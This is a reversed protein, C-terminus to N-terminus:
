DPRLSRHATRYRLAAALLRCEKTRAGGRWDYAGQDPEACGSTELGQNLLKLHSPTLKLLSYPIGDARAWGLHEAENGPPLLTLLQGAVLPGFLTTVLGDFTAAHVAPSGGGWQRYFSQDSWLLYNVLNRHEIVVGKPQGGSGSTYIVYAPNQPAFPQTRQADTPNIDLSRGLASLTDPDDLFFRSPSDPLRPAIQATTLVLAPQADQLMFALREAPYDPDLPLYAAGAKLIALLGFVMEISRPLALAVLTEPGIGQGVLLHALRNARLNLESYTLTTEEFILATAEPSRQVQAEFLAPLTADPVPRGTNNWEVLLQAREGPALLEFRDISQPPDAAIAELLDLFRRQHQALEDVSYLASNANFDIRLGGDDPRDYVAITLDDVPGISLNNPTADHGAFRLRYDFAMVNVTPGFLRQDTSVLGLNRRMDELRYRQHRLARFIEQGVGQILESLNMRPRVTLRLPVVNAVMGPVRRSVAKLRGTVPLGLVLDQAGTLRHVYAAGAAIVIPGLSTGAVRGATRLKELAYPELFATQRLLSGSKAPARGCLSIPEPRDALRELWYRRDRAFHESARYAADDELLFTLSGFPNDPCPLRNALATYVDAVRRAFLSAGFGDMIIHHSRQYWFFRDAAAKFLAFKWLPGSLLDVPQALDTKM